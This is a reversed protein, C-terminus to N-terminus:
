QGWLLTSALHDKHVLSYQYATPAVTATPPLPMTATATSPPLHSLSRASFQWQRQVLCCWVVWTDAYMCM